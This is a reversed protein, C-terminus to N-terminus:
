DLFMVGMGPIDGHFDKEAKDTNWVVRCRKEKEESTEPDTYCVHIELGVNCPYKTRIYIGGKSIDRSIAHHKQGGAEYEVVIEKLTRPLSRKEKLALETRLGPRFYGLIWLGALILVGLPIAIALVIEIHFRILSLSLIGLATCIIYLLSVVQVQTLGLRIMKHHIHESDALFPNRGAVLRRVFSLLTDLIPIGLLLIPILLTFLTIRKAFGQFSIAAILYGLFMSGADGLFIRAPPFNYRLFGLTAGLLPLVFPLLFYRNLGIATLMLFYASLFSIGTALGDLGDILNLANTLMVVWFVFFLIGMAQIFLTEPLDPFITRFVNGPPEFYVLILSALIQVFFKQPANLGYADDLLGALFILTGGIFIGFFLSQYHGLSDPKVLYCLSLTLFFSTYISLGGLLPMPGKHRKRGDPIDLFQYRYALKEILPTSVLGIGLSIFFLIYLLM